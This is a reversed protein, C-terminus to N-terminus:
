RGQALHGYLTELGGGHNIVVHEGYGSNDAGSYSVTGNAAAYIPAGFYAGLDIGTHFSYAAAWNPKGFEQNTSYGSDLPWRLRSQFNRPNVPTGNQRVEFHLHTGTSYGTNGQFGIVEGAAVRDGAHVVRGGYSALKKKLEARAANIQGLQNEAQARAYVLGNQQAALNATLKNLEQAKVEHQKKAALITNVTESIKDSISQLYQERDVFDSLNEAGVLEELKTQNTSQYQARVLEGLKAQGVAMRAKADAIAANTNAIERQTHRIQAEVTAIQNDVNHIHAETEAAHVNASHLQNRTDSAENAIAMTPALLVLLVTVAKTRMGM